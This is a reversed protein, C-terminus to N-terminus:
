LVAKGGNLIIVKNGQKLYDTNIETIEINMTEGANTASAQGTAGGTINASIGETLTKAADAIGKPMVSWKGESNVIITDGHYVIIADNNASKYDPIVFSNEVTYTDGTSVNTPLTKAVGKYVMAVEARAGQKATAYDYTNTYAATGLGTVAINDYIVDNIILKLTGNKTGPNLVISRIAGSSVMSNDIMEQIDVPSVSSYPLEMYTHIGDGFKIKSTLSVPDFEVAPEGKELIITSIQWNSLVDNRLLIKTTIVTTNSNAM